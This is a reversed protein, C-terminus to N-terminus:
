RLEMGGNMASIKTPVTPIEFIVLCVAPLRADPERKMPDAAYRQFALIELGHRAERKFVPRVGPIINPMNIDPAHCCGHMRCFIGSM